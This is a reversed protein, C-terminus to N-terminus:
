RRLFAPSALLMALGQGPSDARAIAQATDPTLADALVLPALKRADALDGIRGAIRSALEVRQMLAASGAWTAVLDDYGAPSGPRWVPQGLQSFLAPINQKDGLAPVKLARMTSVMWDWPSKFMARGDAWPEPSAILTHYLSHLDGGTKRFDAALREVLAPPPTDGSFHRALKTAIHTATAPHTALDRLVAEAQKAGPQDYRKGLITQAGPEHLPQIFVTDGPRAGGPMLRQGPGGGLGAVTLGTLAKAFSTVDAQTYGTRVGLTHLEMIERGLNENLGLKAKKQRNRAREAIPSDPGFSQAQDLYLLMAPHRVAAILLDSFKGMINPRIAEFEYNGTFGITTLKDASVAFHNAWFHTLREPFPTPTAVANALRAGAAEVYHRRIESRSLKRLEAPMAKEDESMSADEKRMAQKDERYAIYAAAIAERGALAAFAPPAPEYDGLQRTLWAKPDAVVPDDWRRGLGFRNAALYQPAM